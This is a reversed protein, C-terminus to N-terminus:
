GNLEAWHAPLSALSPVYVDATRRLTLQDAEGNADYVGVTRYGAAAATQLAYLSDEAVLTQDPPTGRAALHYIDPRHKSVGLEGTTYIAEFCPLLGLRELARTVHSRPSSTAATVSVGRDRLFALATRAGDKEPVENYYYDRLMASLDALVDASEPLPYHTRLYDAGQEMSMAFLLEGLGPEPTLGRRLLYRAGLDKWISMSDLVVGDLDFVAARIMGAIAVVPISVARCIAKLTDYSVDDADDKSGTPFVAGVGLYDAGHKEALLAQEVTQASVGIIKDPGLKRRVDLAEMDSQGVHVGDADMALAIDVNDNVLFPVHYDRCLAQLERAEALFSPEALTKERLQLMTVGGRLSEEVVDRLSRGNLWHRDTVAYLLLDQEACKM